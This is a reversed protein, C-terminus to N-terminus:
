HLLAFEMAWAESKSRISHLGQEDKWTIVFQPNSQVTSVILFTESRGNGFIPHTPWRELIRIIGQRDREEITRIWDFNTLSPADTEIVRNRVETGDAAKYINEYNHPGCAVGVYEFNREFRIDRIAITVAIGLM